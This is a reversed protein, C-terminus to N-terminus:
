SGILIKGMAVTKELTKWNATPLKGKNAITLRIVELCIILIIASIIGTKERIETDM